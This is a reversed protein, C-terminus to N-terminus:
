GDGAACHLWRTRRGGLVRKEILLNVSMSWAYGRSGGRCAEERGCGRDTRRQEERGAGVEGIILCQEERLLAFREYVGSM